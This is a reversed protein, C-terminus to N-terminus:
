VARWEQVHGPERHGFRSVDTELTVNEPLSAIFDDTLPALAVKTRAIWWAEGAVRWSLYLFPENAPGQVFEGRFRQRGAKDRYPEVRAEFAMSGDPEPTGSVVERRGRQMGFETTMSDLNELGHEVLFREYVETAGPPPGTWRVRLRLTRDSM